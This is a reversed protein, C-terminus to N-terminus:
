RIGADEYHWTQFTGHSYRLSDIFEFKQGKKAREYLLRGGPHLAINDLFAEIIATRQPTIKLRQERLTKLISAKMMDELESDNRNLFYYVARKM